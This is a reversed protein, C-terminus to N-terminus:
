RGVLAPLGTSLVPFLCLLVLVGIEALFFWRLERWIEGMTLNGIRCTVFLCVGVPPTILGMTVAILMVMSFQNDDIGMQRTIPLLLPALLLLAPGADLVLGVVVFFTACVLLFVFPYDSVHVLLDRTIGQVGGLILVYNVILVTALVLLLAATLRAAARFAQLIDLLGLERFVVAGLLIALVVAIGGAETPTFVGSVTGLLIFAPLTMVVLGDRAAPLREGAPVAMASQPLEGRLSKAFVVVACSLGLLLGPVIAALFLTLVSIQAVAAYIVMIVSPPIIPGIIASAVTLAAAFARSYGEKPMANIFVRGLSAIDAIATGSIGAFLISAVINAYATGGRVRGVILTSLMILRDALRARVMVEGVLIYFPAALLVFSDLGAFMRSAVNLFSLDEVYLGAMASLGFAFAIPLGGIILM